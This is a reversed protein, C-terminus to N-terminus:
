CLQKQFVASSHLLIAIYQVYVLLGLANGEIEHVDKGGHCRFYRLMSRLARADDPCACLLSPTPAAGSAQRTNVAANTEPTQNLSRTAGPWLGLSSSTAHHLYVLCANFGNMTTTQGSDPKLGLKHHSQISPIELCILLKSPVSLSKM